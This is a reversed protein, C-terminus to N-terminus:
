TCGRPKGAEQWIRAVQRRTDTLGKDTWVVWDALALKGSLPAQAEIREQAQEKSLGRTTLRSMQTHQEAAVVVVKDVLYLLDCEVLLPIEAVLMEGEGARERFERIREELIAIIRPHTISNLVERAKEDHFIIDALAKRDIAGGPTLVAAGFRKAVEEAAPAGPSLVERAIEDASITRAGMERLMEVVTTKGTAVGGTIGLVLAM